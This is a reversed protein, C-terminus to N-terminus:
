DFLCIFFHACVSTNNREESALRRDVANLVLCRVQHMLAKEIAAGDMQFERELRMWSQLLRDMNLYSIM